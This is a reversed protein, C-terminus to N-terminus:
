CCGRGDGIPVLAGAAPEHLEPADFRNRATATDRIADDARPRAAHPELEFADLPVPLM